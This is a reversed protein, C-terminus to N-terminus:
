SFILRYVNEESGYPVRYDVTWGKARYLEMLVDIMSSTLNATIREDIAIAAGERYYKDLKSDIAIEATKFLQDQAEAQRQAQRVILEDKAVAM